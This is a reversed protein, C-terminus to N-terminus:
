RHDPEDDTSKMVPDPVTLEAMIQLLRAQAPGSAKNLAQQLQPLAAPGMRSLAEIAPRAKADDAASELAAIQAEIRKPTARRADARAEVITTGLDDAAPPKAGDEAELHVVIMAGKVDPKKITNPWILDFQSMPRLLLLFSKGVTATTLHQSCIAPPNEITMFIRLVPVRDGQKLPGDIARTVEFDYQRYFYSTTSVGLAGRAGQREQLQGLTTKPGISVLKAQVIATSWQVAREDIQPRLCAPCAGAFMLLATAAGFTARIM